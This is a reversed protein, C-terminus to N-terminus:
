VNEGVRSESGNQVRGVDAAVGHVMLRDLLESRTQTRNGACRIANDLCKFREIVVVQQGYLAMRFIKPIATFWAPLCQKGIEDVRATFSRRIRM